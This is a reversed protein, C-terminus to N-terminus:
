VCKEKFCMTKRISRDWRQGKKGYPVATAVTITADRRWSRFGKTCTGRFLNAPLKLDEQIWNSVIQLDVAEGLTGSHSTIEERGTERHM